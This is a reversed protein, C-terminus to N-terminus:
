AAWPGRIIPRRQPRWPRADSARRACQVEALASAQQRSGRRVPGKPKRERDGAVWPRPGYHSRNQWKSALRKINGVVHKDAKACGSSPEVEGEDFGLALARLHPLLM